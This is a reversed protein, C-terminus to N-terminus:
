RAESRQSEYTQTQERRQREGAVGANGFVVVYRTSEVARVQRHDTGDHAGAIVRHTKRLALREVLRRHAFPHRGGAAHRDEEVAPQQRVLDDPLRGANMRGGLRHRARAVAAIRDLREGFRGVIGDVAAHGVTQRRSLAEGGIGEVADRHELGLVEVVGAHERVVACRQRARVGEVEARLGVVIGGLVLPQGGHVVVACREGAEAVAAVVGEASIRTTGEADLRGARAVAVQQGGAARAHEVGATKRRAM